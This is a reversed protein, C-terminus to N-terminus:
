GHFNDGYGGTGVFFDAVEDPSSFLLGDDKVGAVIGFPNELGQFFISEGNRGIDAGVTVGIM